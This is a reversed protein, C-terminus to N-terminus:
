PCKRRLIFCTETKACSAEGDRLKKRWIKITRETVGLEYALVIQKEGINARFYAFPCCYGLKKTKQKVITNM